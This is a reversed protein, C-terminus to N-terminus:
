DGDRSRSIASGWRPARALYRRYPEGFRASLYREERKVVGYHLAVALAPVALAVGDSAAALAVAALILLLGLYMPNRVRAYIGTTVLADAPHWPEVATGARRFALIGGVGLLGAGALALGALALRAPVPVAAVVATPLVWDLAFGGALAILFLLPPPAVVDPAADSRSL